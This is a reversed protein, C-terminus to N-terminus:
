REIIPLILHSPYESTHYIRNLAPRLDEAREAPINGGTNSNREFRPFNSSSVELRLCHGEKFLNSTAGLHIYLEYVQSPEMLKAEAFSDRYRARLIGDTLLEARGDPHIDVLKGTFDTDPVSSSVYLVLEIPGTVELPQALPASTYCLVDERREVERQDFPGMTDIEDESAADRVTLVPNHPDYCYVDEAEETPQETSLLGNGSLTNAHGTSHLYFQRYQTDPLPWSEEERWVDAGMVFIRVPKEQELGNEIGKLWHDYWRLHLDTLMDKAFSASGYNRSGFGRWFNGHSWPGIVLHQQARALASGGRQKMGQYYDLDKTLFPDYWGSITLAPVTVDELFKTSVLNQWYPDHAPHALWEFYYPARELLRPQDLLPLRQFPALLDKNAQEIGKTEAQEQRVALEGEDNWAWGLSVNMAWELTLGLLFAGGQYPNLHWGPSQSPVIAQLAASQARAAQWQTLGQYSVGFMGVKGNSWAQRAAWEITDTGDERERVFPEFTGESAFRGRTDQAVIVYGAEVVREADLNLELFLRKDELGPVPFRMDKNYPVRTLLVPWQGDGAPRYIDTALRVGDRMPVMINEEIVISM